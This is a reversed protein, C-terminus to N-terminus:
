LTGSIIIVSDRGEVGSLSVLPNLAIINSKKRM